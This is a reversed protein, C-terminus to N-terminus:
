NRKEYLYYGKMGPFEVAVMNNDIPAAVEFVKVETEHLIEINIDFLIGVQKYEKGEVRFEGFCNGVEKEECKKGCSAYCKGDVIVMPYKMDMSLQEWSGSMNGTLIEDVPQFKWVASVVRYKLQGQQFIFKNCILIMILTAAAVLVFKYIRKFRNERGVYVLTEEVFFDDVDNMACFLDLGNM